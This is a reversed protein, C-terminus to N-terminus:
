RLLSKIRAGWPHSEVEHALRTSLGVSVPHLSLFHFVCMHWLFLKLLEAFAEDSRLEDIERNREM